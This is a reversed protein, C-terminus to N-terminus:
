NGRVGASNLSHRCCTSIGISVALFNQGLSAFSFSWVHSFSSVVFISFYSFELNYEYKM